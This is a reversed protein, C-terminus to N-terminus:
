HVDVGPSIKSKILRAAPRPTAKLEFPKTCLTIGFYETDLDLKSGDASSWDFCHLHTAAKLVMIIRGLGYGVCMRKGVGFPIFKYSDMDKRSLEANLFYKTLGKEEELFREPRFEEPKKWYKPNHNVAYLNFMVQAGKPVNYGALKTDRITGHPIGFPAFHKFRFEECITAMLYPLTKENCDDLTPLRDPGIVRNLEDQCKKLKDPNNVLLYLLTEFSNATTDIGGAMMDWLIVIIDDDTLGLKQQGVLMHDVFDRLNNPDLTDKHQQIWKRIYDDRKDTVDQLEKVFKGFFPRFFPMYDSPNGASISEFIKAIIKQVEDFEQSLGEYRFNFAMRMIVNLSERRMQERVKVLKGTAAADKFQQATAYVEELIVPAAREGNKKSTVANLLAKRAKVWRKLDPQLAIGVGRTIINMSEPVFRGNFDDGHKKMAEYIAEPSSLVLTYKNGFWFSM